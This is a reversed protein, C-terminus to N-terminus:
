QHNGSMGGPNWHAPLLGEGYFRDQLSLDTCKMGDALGEPLYYFHLFQKKNDWQWREKV